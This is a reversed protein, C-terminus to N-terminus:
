YCGKCTIEYKVETHESLKTKFELVAWKNKQKSTQKSVYENTKLGTPGSFKGYQAISKVEMKFEKLKITEVLIGKVLIIGLLVCLGQKSRGLLIVQHNLKLFVCIFRAFSLPAFGTM